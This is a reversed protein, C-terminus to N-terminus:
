DVELEADGDRDSPTSYLTNVRAYALSACALSNGSDEQLLASVMGSLEYGWEKSGHSAFRASAAAM